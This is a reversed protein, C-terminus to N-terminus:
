RSPDPSDPAQHPLSAEDVFLRFPRRITWYPVDPLKRGILFRGLWLQWEPGESRSFYILRPKMWAALRGQFLGSQALRYYVPHLLRSFTRDCWQRGKLVYLTAPAVRPVPLTRGRRRIAVVKGLIDGPKLTWDDMATLNDGKTFIGEPRVAAVRHIVKSPKGPHPFAVVDGERIELGHYPVLNVVDGERFLPNMSSGSYLLKRTM